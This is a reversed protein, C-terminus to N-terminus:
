DHQSSRCNPYDCEDLEEFTYLCHSNKCSCVPIFLPCTEHDPDCGVRPGHEPDCEVRPGEYIDPNVIYIGECELCVRYVPVEKGVQDTFEDFDDSV